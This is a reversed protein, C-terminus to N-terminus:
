GEPLETLMFVRTVPASGIVRCKIVIRSPSLRKIDLETVRMASLDLAALLQLTPPMDRRIEDMTPARPM